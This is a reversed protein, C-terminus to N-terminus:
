IYASRRVELCKYLGVEAFYAILGGADSKESSTNYEEPCWM